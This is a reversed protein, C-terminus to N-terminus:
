NTGRQKLELSVLGRHDATLGAENDLLNVTLVTLLLYYLYVIRKTIFMLLILKILRDQMQM